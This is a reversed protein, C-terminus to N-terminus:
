IINIKFLGLGREKSTGAFSRAYSMPTLDVYKNKAM